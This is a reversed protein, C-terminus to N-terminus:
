DSSFLAGLIALIVFGVIVVPIATAIFSFISEIVQCIWAFVTQILALLWCVFKWGFYGAAVVGILVFLGDWGGGGGSGDSGGCSGGRHVHVVEDPDAHTHRHRMFSAIASTWSQKDSARPQTSQQPQDMNM